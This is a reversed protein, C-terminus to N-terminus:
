QERIRYDYDKLDINNTKKLEKKYEDSYALHMQLDYLVRVLVGREPDFWQTYELSGQSVTQFSQTAAAKAVKKDAVLELKTVLVAVRASDIEEYGQLTMTGVASFPNVDSMKDYPRSLKVVSGTRVKAAPLVLLWDSAIQTYQTAAAYAGKADVEYGFLQFKREQATIQIKGNADTSVSSIGYEFLDQTRAKWQLDVADDAFAPLSVAIAVLLSRLIPPGGRVGHPYRRPAPPFPSDAPRTQPSHPPARAEGHAGM